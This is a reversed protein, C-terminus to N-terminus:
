NKTKCVYTRSLNCDVDNWKGNVTLACNEKGRSNNPNSGGWNAYGGWNEGDLWVWTGELVTDSAGIWITTNTPALSAVFQNEELSHITVLISGLDSCHQKAKDWKTKVNFFKYCSLNFKKWGDTLNCVDEHCNKGKSGILCQCEYNGDGYNPKCMGGNKCPEALCPTMISFHHSTANEQFSKSSVYKDSAMMECWFLKSEDFSSAVNVSLCTSDQVCKFCCEVFNQVPFEDSIRTANLYHFSHQVFNKFQFTSNLCSQLSEVQKQLINNLLCFTLIKFHLTPLAM